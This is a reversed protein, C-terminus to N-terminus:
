SFYYSNVLSFNGIQIMNKNFKLKIVAIFIIWFIKEKYTKAVLEKVAEIGESEM